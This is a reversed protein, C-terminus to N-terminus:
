FFAAPSINFRDSLNRIHEVTLNRKGALIESVVSQRGIEPLQNQKLDHQKMLFRLVQTGDVKPEPYHRQDYAYVLDSITMFLSHSPHKEDMAGADVLEDAVRTAEEYDRENTIHGIHAIGRFNDWASTIPVIALQASMEM